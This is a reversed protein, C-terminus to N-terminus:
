QRVDQLIKLTFQLATRPNSTGDNDRIEIEAYYTGIPTTETALLTITAVGNPADTVTCERNVLATSNAAIRSTKVIFYAKKLNLNWQVGLNFTLTKVDGRIITQTLANTVTIMSQLVGTAINGTLTSERAIAMVRFSSFSKAIANEYFIGVYNGEVTFNYDLYYLGAEIETFTKLDSKVM